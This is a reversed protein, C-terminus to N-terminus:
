RALRKRCKLLLTKAKFLLKSLLYWHFFRITQLTVQVSMLIESICKIDVVNWDDAVHKMIKKEDSTDKTALDLHVQSM